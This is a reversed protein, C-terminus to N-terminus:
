EGKWHDPAARGDAQGQVRHNQKGEMGKKSFLLFLWFLNIYNARVPLWM